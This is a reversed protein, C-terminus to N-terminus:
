EQNTTLNSGLSAKCIIRIFRVILEIRIEPENNRIPIYKVSLRFPTSFFYRICIASRKYTRKAVSIANNGSSITITSDVVPKSCSAIKEKTKAEISERIGASAM